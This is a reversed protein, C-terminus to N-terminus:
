IKKILNYIKHLTYYRNDHQYIKVFLSNNQKDLVFSPKTSTYAIIKKNDESKLISTTYGVTKYQGNEKKISANKLKYLKVIKTNTDINSSVILLHVFLFISFIFLLLYIVKNTLMKNNIIQMVM